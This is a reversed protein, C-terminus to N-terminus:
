SDESSAKEFSYIAPVLPNESFAKVKLDKAHGAIM